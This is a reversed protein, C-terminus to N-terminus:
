DQRGLELLVRKITKYVILDPRTQTVVRFTIKNPSSLLVLSYLIQSKKDVPTIKDKTLLSLEMHM